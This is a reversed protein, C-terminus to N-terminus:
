EGLILIKMQMKVVHRIVDKEDAAIDIAEMQWFVKEQELRNLFKGLDHYTAHARVLISLSSYQGDENKVLVIGDSKQPVLQNIKVGYENATTSITKLVAPISDAKHVMAQFDKVQGRAMDLNKLFDAMRQKNTRLTEIEAKLQETKKSL